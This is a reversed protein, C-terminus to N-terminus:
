RIEDALMNALKSEDISESSESESEESGSSESESQSDKPNDSQQALLVNVLEQTQRRRELELGFSAPLNSWADDPEDIDGINDNYGSM